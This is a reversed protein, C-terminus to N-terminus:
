STENEPFLPKSLNYLYIYPFPILLFLYTGIHTNIYEFVIACLSIVPITLISWSVLKNKNKPIPFKLLGENAMFYKWIVLLILGTFIHATAYIVVVLSDFRYLTKIKALFPILSISFLFLINLLAITSNALALVYYIRHHITWYIAIVLFSIAYAVLGPELKILFLKLGEESFNHDTPIDLGLVLLTLAIAIVGDTFANIRELGYREHIKM